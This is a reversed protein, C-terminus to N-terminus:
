RTAGLLMRREVLSIGELTSKAKTKLLIEGAALRAAPPRNLTPRLRVAVVLTGDRKAEALREKFRAVVKWRGSGASVELGGARRIDDRKAAAPTTRDPVFTRTINETM